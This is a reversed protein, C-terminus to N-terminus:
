RTSALPAGATSADEAETDAVLTAQVSIWENKVLERLQKWVEADFSKLLPHFQKELQYIRRELSRREPGSPLTTAYRYLRDIEGELKRM